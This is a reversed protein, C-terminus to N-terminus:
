GGAPAPHRGAPRAPGPFPPLRRLDAPQAPRLLAALGAAQRLLARALGRGAAAVRHARRPVGAAGRVGHRRRPHLPAAAARAGPVDRGPHRLVVLRQLPLAGGPRPRRARRPPRAPPRAARRAARQQRRHGRRGRVHHRPRFLDVMAGGVVTPRATRAAFAHTTVLVEPDFDIDDDMFLVHSCGGGGRLVEMAARTFGGAGGLNPQEVLEVRGAERALLAAMEASAFRPGQNVVVIRPSAWRHYPSRLVRRLTALLMRERNFTCLGIGLRVARAAPTGTELRGALIAAEAPTATVDFFIRGASAPGVDLAVKAAASGEPDLRLRHWGIRYASGDPMARFTEVTVEGSGFLRLSLDEVPAHTLWYHEYFSNLYTNFSVRAGGLLLIGAELARVQGDLVRYALGPGSRPASFRLEQLVADSLPPPRWAAFDAAASDLAAAAAPADAGLARELLTALRALVPQLQGAPEAAAAPSGAVPPAAAAAPPPDAPDPDRLSDSPSPERMEPGRRTWGAHPRWRSPAVPEGREAEPRYPRFDERLGLAVARGV